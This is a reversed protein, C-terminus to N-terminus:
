PRTRRGQRIRPRLIPAAHRARRRRAAHWPQRTCAPRVEPEPRDQRASPNLGRSSVRWSKTARCSRRRGRITIPSRCTPRTARRLRWRCASSRAAFPDLSTTETDLATLPSQEIKELWREFTPWDLITEYAARHAGDVLLDPPPEHAAVPGDSAAPAAGGGRRGASGQALQADRLAYFIEILTRPRGPAAQPRDALAAPRPRLARDGAPAGAASLRARPAPQRRGRWRHRRRRRHRRRAFRVAGAV